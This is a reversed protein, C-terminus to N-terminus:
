GWTSIIALEGPNAFSNVIWPTAVIQGLSLAGPSGSSFVTQQGTVTYPGAGALVTTGPIVGVGSIVSGIAVAGSTTSSVTFTSAATGTLNVPYAASGVTQPASLPNNTTWTSGSGATLYTGPALNIQIANSGLTPSTLTITQWQAITGTLTSVVTLTNGSIYGTGTWAQAGATIYGTGVFATGASTAAVPYGGIPEAYVTQGPSAGNFFQAWFDGQSYMELQYGQPVLYSNFGLFNTILANVNAPQFAIQAGATYGDTVLGTTQNCWNFTGCPSGGVPATWYGPGALLSMRPNTGFKDGPKGLAPITAIVQQFGSSTPQTLPM